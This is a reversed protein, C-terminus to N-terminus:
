SKLHTDIIKVTLVWFFESPSHATDLHFINVVVEVYREQAIIKFTKM